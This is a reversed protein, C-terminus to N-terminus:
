ILWHCQLTVQLTVVVRLLQLLEVLVQPLLRRPLAQRLPHVQQPTILLSSVPAVLQLSTLATM